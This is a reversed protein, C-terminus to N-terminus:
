EKVDFFIIETREDGLSIKVEINPNLLKDYFWLKKNLTEGPLITADKLEARELNSIKKNRIDPDTGYIESVFNFVEEASLKDLPVNNSLVRINESSLKFERDSNNTVVLECDLVGSELLKFRLEWMIKDTVFLVVPPHENNESVTYFKDRHGKFAFGYHPKQISPKLYLVKNVNGRIIEIKIERNLPQNELYLGVDECNNFEKDNVKKIVDGKQIGSKEFPLGSVVDIITLDRNLEEFTPIGVPYLHIVRKRLGADKLTDFINKNIFVILDGYSYLMAGSYPIDYGPHYTPVKTTSTGSYSGNSYSYGGGHGYHTTGSLSGKHHTTQTEYRTYGPMNIKGAYEKYESKYNIIADAGKGRAIQLMKNYIDEWNLGYSTDGYVEIRGIIKYNRHPKPGEKFIDIPYDAKKPRFQEQTYPIYRSTAACGCLLITVFFLITKKMKDRLM